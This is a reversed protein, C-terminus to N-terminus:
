NELEPAIDEGCFLYSCDACDLSAQRAHLHEIAVSPDVETLQFSGADVPLAFRLAGAPQGPLEALANILDTPDPLGPVPDLELSGLLADLENMLALPTLGLAVGLRAEFRLGDALLRGRLDEGDWGVIRAAQVLSDGFCLGQAQVDRPPYPSVRALADARAINVLTLAAIQAEADGSRLAAAQDAVQLFEDHTGLLTGRIVEAWGAQREIRRQEALTDLSACVYAPLPTATAVAHEGRVDVEAMPLTAAVAMAEATTPVLACPISGRYGAAVYLGITCISRGGLAVVVTDTSIGSQVFAHWLEAACADTCAARGEPVTIDLVQWGEQSLATKVRSRFIEGARQDSLLIARSLGPYRVTLDRGIADLLQSGIRVTCDPRAPLTIVVRAAPM